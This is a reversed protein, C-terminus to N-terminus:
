EPGLQPILPQSSAGHSGGIGGGDNEIWVDHAQLVLFRYHNYQELKSAAIGSKTTQLISNVSPRRIFLRGVCNPITHNETARPVEKPAAALSRRKISATFLVFTFATRESSACCISRFADSGSPEVARCM